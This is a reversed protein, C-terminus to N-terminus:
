NPVQDFKIEQIFPKPGVIFADAVVAGSPGTHSFVARGAKNATGPFDAANTTTDAFAVQGAPITFSKTGAVVGTSDVLTLTGTVSQNSVNQFGWATLFDPFVAWRPSVLTTDFFQITYESTVTCTTEGVLHVFLNQDTAAVFTARYSAIASSGVLDIGTTLETIGDSELIQFKSGVFDFCTSQRGGVRVEYSHGAAVILRYWDQDAISGGMKAQVDHRQSDGPLLVNRTDTSSDDPPSAQDWVDTAGATGAAWALLVCILALHGLKNWTSM